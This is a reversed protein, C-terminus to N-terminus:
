SWSNPQYCYKVIHDAEERAIILYLSQKGWFRRNTTAPRACVRAERDSVARVITYFGAFSSVWLWRSGLPSSPSSSSSSSPWESVRWCDPSWLIWTWSGRRWSSLSGGWLASVVRAGGSERARAARRVCRNRLNWKNTIEVYDYYFM